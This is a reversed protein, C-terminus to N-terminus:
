IRPSPRAIKKLEELESIDQTRLIEGTDGPSVRWREESTVAPILRGEKEM